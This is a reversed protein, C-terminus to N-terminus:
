CGFANRGVGGEGAATPVWQIRPMWAQRRGGTSDIIAVPDQYRAHFAPRLSAAWHEYHRFLGVGVADGRSPCDGDVVGLGSAVDVAGGKRGEGAGTGNTSEAIGSTLRAALVAVSIGSETLAHAGSTRDSVVWLTAGACVGLTAIALLVSSIGTM